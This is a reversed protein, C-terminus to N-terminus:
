GHKEEKPIEESILNIIALFDIRKEPDLYKIFKALKVLYFLIKANDM